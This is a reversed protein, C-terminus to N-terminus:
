LKILLSIKTGKGIESIIQLTAKLDDARKKMSLLGNGGLKTVSPRNAQLPEGSRFQKVPAETAFGKGDDRITMELVNNKKSFEVWLNKCEAYKAANNIVEKFILYLNKRQVMDLPMDPINKNEEFHLEFNKSESMQVAFSRMRNVLNDLKDNRTNVAWVIDSMAEMMEMTNSNIKSLVKHAPENGNLMKKVAATYLSISSLTSGIEDHLDTAIRNRLKQLNLAQQLRYRYLSYVSAAISLIVMCRFWWTAWWPPSIYVAIAAEKKSWVGDSNTGRVRFTYSGPNLNTFSVENLRTAPSWEDALGELQYQFQNRSIGSYDTSTFSFTIFNQKYDLHLEPTAFIAKQLISGTTNVPVEKNAIKFGTLLVDPQFPSENIEDPNFINIGNVGGFVMEGSQLKCYSYRNFENSQLGDRATFLKIEKTSPNFRAIGNNTSMWLNGHTDFLIGYIVNNPLGNETTYTICRGNNRDFKVLGGGCTGIWLINKIDPDPCLSFIINVPLSATDTANHKYQKWTENKTNFYFLGEMTGLWLNDNEDAVISSTFPYQITTKQVPFWYSNLESVSDENLKHLAINKEFGTAFWMNGKNDKASVAGPITNSKQLKSRWVVDMRRNIYFLSDWRILWYGKKDVSFAGCHLKHDGNMDWTREKESLMRVNHVNKDRDFRSLTENSNYLWLSKNDHDEWIGYISFAENGNGAIHHFRDIGTNYKLLGYGNTGLWVTGSRDIFIVFVNTLVHNKINEDESFLVSMKGNRPDYLLPNALFVNIWFRNDNDITYGAIAKTPYISEVVCSDTKVGSIEDYISFVRFSSSLLRHNVTDEACINISNPKSSMVTNSGLKVQSFKTYHYRSVKIKKSIDADSCIVITDKYSLYLEDAASIFAGYYDAGSNVVPLYRTLNTVKVSYGFGRKGKESSLEIKFYSSKGGSNTLYAKNNKIATFDWIMTKDYGSKELDSTLHYAVETEPNFIDISQDFYTIWLLGEDDGTVSLLNSSAISNTDKEHHYYVKFHYGDYKNLGDKTAFWMFGRKDQTIGLVMGQSLGDDITLREFKLKLTDANMQANLSHQIGYCIILLLLQKKM